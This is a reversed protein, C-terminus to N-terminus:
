KLEKVEKAVQQVEKMIDEPSKFGEMLPAASTWYVDVLKSNIQVDLWENVGRDLLLQMAKVNQPFSTEKNVAGIVSSQWTNMKVMKEANAKSTLFKLFDIAEDPHKSESSVVFGDAGGVISKLDGDEGEMPPMPFVDWNDGMAEVMQPFEESYSYYMASKGALFSQLAMDAPTTNVNSNFYGKDQLEKFKKLADVYGPNTWEGTKYNYDKARVEPNVMMLNFATEYHISAWIDQQGYAIPTVGANKLTECLKMFEDYTKPEQLQHKAFIEKNYVFFKGLLRLPIGYTKGEYQYSKLASPIFSNKWAPDNELYSSVDKVVGARIYKQAYESGWSFFIDPVDSGGLIVKMKDKLTEDYIAEAQIKINPHSQEYEKIVEDFYGSYVPQPWSRLVKLTIQKGDGAAKGGGEDSNSNSCATMTLALCLTVTTALSITKNM